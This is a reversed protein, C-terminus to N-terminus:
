FVTEDLTGDRREAEDYCATWLETATNGGFIVHNLEESTFTYRVIKALQQPEVIRAFKEAAEVFSTRATLEM